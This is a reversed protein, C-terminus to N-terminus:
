IIKILEGNYIIKHNKPDLKREQTMKSKPVPKYTYSTRYKIMSIQMCKLNRFLLKKFMQRDIPYSSM